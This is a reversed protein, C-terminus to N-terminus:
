YKVDSTFAQVPVQGQYAQPQQGYVPPQQGYAQPQQGVYVPPSYIQQTAPQTNIAVATNTQVTM